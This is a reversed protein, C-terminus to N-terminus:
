HPLPWASPQPASNWIIETVVPDSVRPASTLSLPNDRRELTVAEGLLSEVESATLAPGLILVLGAGERVRTATRELGPIVGNLLFVDAQAPDTVFAFTDPDGTLDLAERVSGEPGAYYVSVTARATAPSVLVFPIALALALLVLRRM